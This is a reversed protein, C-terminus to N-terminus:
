KLEEMFRNMERIVDAESSRYIYHSAGAIRLVRAQPATKEFLDARAADAAMIRQMFPKDCNPACRRPMALLALVPVSPAGYPHQNASIKNGALDSPSEQEAPLGSVADMGAATDKLSQELNVLAAQTERILATWKAPNPQLDFMRDLDRRVIASDLALNPEAPNYFAFSQLADLYVLGAVKEPHRTGISSLEEGAISHGAIVPKEIHLSDMVALVDDGLRNADYNEDTPPAMSSAGFGRRTIAYVHHNAIFKPAFSDFTHASNGLGSLFILPRGSGGWDLVELKIGPQVAVFQVKHPSADIVWEDKRAARAFRLPQSPPGYLMKWNGAITKGDDSLTGDFVGEAKDLAFHISNGSLAINSVSDFRPAGPAEDGLNYFSGAYRHATKHVKLVRQPKGDAQWTGTIDAARVPLAFATLMALLLLTKTM